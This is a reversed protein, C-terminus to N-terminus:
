VHCPHCDKTFYKQFTVLCVHSHYYNFCFCFVAVRPFPFFSIKMTVMNYYKFTWNEALLGFFLIIIWEFPFLNFSVIGSSAWTNSKCSLSKLNATKFISVYSFSVRSSTRARVRTSSSVALQPGPVPKLAPNPAVAM